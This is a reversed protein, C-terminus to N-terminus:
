KLIEEEKFFFYVETEARNFSDSGHVANKMLSTGFDWRLTGAKAAEPDTTGNIERVLHHVNKGELVVLVVPGSTMFEILEPFFEKDSHELYFIEAEEKKLLIQKMGVIKLKSAEYRRIIEGVLGARVADPKILALTISM